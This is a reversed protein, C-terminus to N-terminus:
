SKLKLLDTKYVEFWMVSAFAVGACLWFQSANIVKLQFINRVAPVFHLMALFLASVILLFPALNNKYRLTYYM